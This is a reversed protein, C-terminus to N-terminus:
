ISPACRTNPFCCTRISSKFDLPQQGGDNLFSGFMVSKFKVIDSRLNKFEISISQEANHGNEFVAVLTVVAYRCRRLLEFCCSLVLRDPVQFILNLACTLFRVSDQVSFAVRDLAGPPGQVDHHTQVAFGRIRRGKRQIPLCGKCMMRIGWRKKGKAHDRSIKDNM